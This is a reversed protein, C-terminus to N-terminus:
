PHTTDISTYIGLRHKDLQIRNQRACKFIGIKRMYYMYNCIDVCFNTLSINKQMDENPWWLEITYTM